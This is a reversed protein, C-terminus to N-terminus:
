HQSQAVSPAGTESRNTDNVWMIGLV